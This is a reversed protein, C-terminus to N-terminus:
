SRRPTPRGNVSGARRGRRRPEEDVEPSRRGADGLPEPEYGPGSSVREALRAVESIYSTLTDGALRESPGAVNLAAIVSGDAIHLPAAISTAGVVQEGLSVAYGNARVSALERELQKRTTITNPTLPKLPTAALTAERREPSSFALLVKGSAGFYLPLREGVHVVARIREQSEIRDVCIREIGDLVYLSVSEGTVRHLEELAPRAKARIDLTATYIRGWSLIKPGLGYAHTIPDQSLIAMEHLATLLRGVTSRSLHVRRAIERVGLQPHQVSFSDLIAIARRLTQAGLTPATPNPM